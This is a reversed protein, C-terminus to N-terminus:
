TGVCGACLFVRDFGEHWELGTPRAIAVAGRGPELRAVKGEVVPIGRTRVLPDLTTRSSYVAGAFCGACCEGCYVCADPHGARTELMMRSVGAHVAYAGSAPHATVTDRLRAMGRLLRMPPRNTYDPNFYNNLADQEGSIGVLDAIERYYPDLEAAT